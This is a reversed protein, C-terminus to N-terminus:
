EPELLAILKKLDKEDNFDVENKHLYSQLQAKSKPYLRLLNKKNAPLFTNYQDGFFYLKVRKLAVNERVSLTTLISGDVNTFSSYSEIATTSSPQEYGGIKERKFVKYDQKKLIKGAENNAIQEMYGYVPHYYFRSSDIIVTKLNLIQEKVLALTDGNSSIFEIHGNLFNYNLNASTITGDRFFVKGQKFNPFRYIKGPTVVDSLTKGAPIFIISSDQQANVCTFGFFFAITILLRMSYYYELTLNKL